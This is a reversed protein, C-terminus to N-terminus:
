LFDRLMPILPRDAAPMPYEVLRDPAVWALAQGEKPQPKGQWRRCFYLPMLLHFGDYAHSAFAFPALNREEVVIGLEEKLERALATEPTEGPNLKGGPFEWLGAMKKGEPRRALLIHGDADILACAAVLLIPRPVAETQDPKQKQIDQAPKDRTAVFHLVPLKAEARCLFAQRGKGTQVFGARRLIALSAENDEAVTATVKTIRLEALGWATLRAAAELGYGHRWHKRGIWYGLDATKGDRSLRLGASGILKGTSQLTIAFQHAQGSVRDAAAAGIWEAALEVPYPFPADPLKRCIDWDNIQRHFDQADEPGLPRLNLRETRLIPQPGKAAMPATIRKRPAPTTESAGPQLAASILSDFLDDM